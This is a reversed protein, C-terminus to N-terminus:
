RDMGLRPKRVASPTSPVGYALRKELKGMMGWAALAIFLPQLLGGTGKLVPLATLVANVIPALVDQGGAGPTAANTGITALIAGVIGIITKKGNLLRGLLQGLAANIPTLEPYQAAIRDLQARVIAMDDEAAVITEQSDTADTQVMNVLTSYTGTRVM